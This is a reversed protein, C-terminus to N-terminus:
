IGLKNQFDGNLSELMFIVGAASFTLPKQGMAIFNNSTIYESFSLKRPDEVRLYDSLMEKSLGSHNNNSLGLSLVGMWIPWIGGNHFYYPHNKFNYSYNNAIGKWEHDNPFIPPWFSPTFSKGLSSFLKQLYQNISLLQDADALNLMLALGVGAPDFKTNFENPSLYCLWHEINANAMSEFLRRHYIISSDLNTKSPWFNTKIKERLIDSKAEVAEGLIEELLIQGWLRLANDYLTHGQVPYEDAWNGSLPTYILGNGNFEWSAVIGAAKLLQKEYKSILVSDSSHRLYLCTGIIWWLTSDVRGAIHGFSVENAQGIAVNSPIMGLDHQNNVLIELTNKLGEILVKDGLLLGAIGGIIGDRAWIRNYNDVKSPSALIGYPTCALHLAERAQQKITEIDM